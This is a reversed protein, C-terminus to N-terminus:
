QNLLPQRLKLFNYKLYLPLIKDNFISSELTLVRDFTISRIHDKIAKLTTILALATGMAEKNQNKIIIMYRSKRERLTILNTQTGKKFLMLDAEWHGFEQRQNITHPRSAILLDKPVRPKRSGRKIRLPRKRRLHHYFLNRREYNSYIYRYITEHSSVCQGQNEM